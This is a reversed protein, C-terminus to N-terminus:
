AGEWKAMLGTDGYAYPYQRNGYLSFKTDNIANALVAGPKVTVPFSFVHYTEEWTAYKGVFDGGLEMIADLIMDLKEQNIGQRGEHEFVSDELTGYGNIEVGPIQSLSAWNRQGGPTQMDGALLTAKMITLVIGYLAKAMGKGRYDENVTITNVSYAPTPWHAKRIKLQGIIEVSGWENSSEVKPDYLRITTDALGEKTEITYRLGSGGPLPSSKRLTQAYLDANFTPLSMKGGEYDHASIQTIESLRM